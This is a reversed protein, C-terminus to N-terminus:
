FITKNYLVLLTTQNLWCRWLNSLDKWRRLKVYFKKEWIFKSVISYLLYKESEQTFNKKDIPTVSRRGCLASAFLNWM